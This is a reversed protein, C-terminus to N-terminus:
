RTAEGRRMRRKAGGAPGLQAPVAGSRNLWDALKLGRVRTFERTNHTVLTASLSLAHGAILMDNECAATCALISQAVSVAATGTASFQFDGLVPNAFVLVENFRGGASRLVYQNAVLAFIEGPRAALRQVTGQTGLPVQLAVEIWPLEAGGGGGTATGGGGTSGGGGTAFGGGTALGGGMGGDPRPPTLAGCGALVVALAVVLPNVLIALFWTSGNEGLLTSPFPSGHNLLETSELSRATGEVRSLSFRPIFRDRIEVLGGLPPSPGRLCQSPVPM